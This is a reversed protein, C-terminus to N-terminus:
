SGGCFTGDVEWKSHMEGRLPLQKQRLKNLLIFVLSQNNLRPWSEWATPAPHELYKAKLIWHWSQWCLGPVYKLNKALTFSMERVEIEVFTISNASRMVAYQPIIERTVM